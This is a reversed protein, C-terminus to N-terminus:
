RWRVKISYKTIEKEGKAKQEMEERDAKTKPDEGKYCKKKRKKKKVGMAVDFTRM